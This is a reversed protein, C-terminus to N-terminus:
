LFDGENYDELTPINSGTNAINRNGQDKHFWSLITAQHDKYESGTSKLYSSLREIYNDLQYGLMAELNSLEEDSLYVNQFYGLTTKGKNLDTKTIETKSYNTNTRQIKKMEQSTANVNRSHLNNVESTYSKCESVFPTMFDMVYILNPKGLGQRIREVLGIDELEKMIKVATKNSKNLSEMIEEITFIIFVRGASDRWDNKYSLDTRDLLCAYLIKADSSLTKFLDDYILVKPLMYFSYREGDRNYFYDFKM